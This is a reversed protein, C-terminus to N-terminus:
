FTSWEGKAAHARAPVATAFSPTAVVAPKFAIAGPATRAPAPVASVADPARPVAQADGAGLRFRSVMDLLAAAQEKMSETAGTAEEVLSANQQVVQDMQTVATNVQEIGSSQEHSAAAIEGILDAVKKVSVVIDDMTRGAAEVQRSGAEVQEVSGGILTKIEKAAAASRQALTRVEAAVVAFGRGQEGARAAEVAANLALINTQFAIGDIVGIIESVKRSSGSIGTMTQVVEGVAEGGRRAVESAAIALQSAQRAHDANQTVSTTLEEMSSATEELTSAQEETRQSLDVNGQAIQTSTDAVLHAGAVVEGVLRRLNATMGGLSQLLQGLEDRRGTHVEFRLDGDAVRKAAAVAEGIPVTISRGVLWGLTAGLVACLLGAGVLLQLGADYIAGSDRVEDKTDDELVDVLKDLRQSYDAEGPAIRNLLLDRAEDLRDAAALQLFATELDAHKKQAEQVAALAGQGAVNLEVQALRAQLRESEARMARVADLEAKRGEAPVLFFARMHKAGGELHAHWEGAYVLGPAHQTGVDQVNRNLAWLSRVGVAAMALTLLALLGFALGLKLSVRLNQFM